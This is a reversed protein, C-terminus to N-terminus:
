SALLLRERKLNEFGEFEPSALKSVVVWLAAMATNNAMKEVHVPPDSHYCMRM